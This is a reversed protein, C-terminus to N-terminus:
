VTNLQKFFDTNACYILDEVIESFFLVINNLDLHYIIDFRDDTPNNNKFNEYLAFCDLLHDIFEIEEDSLTDEINFNALIYNKTNISLNGVM